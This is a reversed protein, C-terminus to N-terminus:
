LSYNDLLELILNTCSTFALKTSSLLPNSYNSVLLWIFSSPPYSSYPCPIQYHDVYILFTTTLKM